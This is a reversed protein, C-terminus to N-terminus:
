RLVLEPYLEDRLGVLEFKVEVQQVGRLDNRLLLHRHARDAPHHEVAVRVVKEGLGLLDGEVGGVEDGTDIEGIVRQQLHAVEGVEIGLQDAQAPRVKVM